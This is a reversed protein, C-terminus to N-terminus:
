SSDDITREFLDLNFNETKEQYVDIEFRIRDGRHLGIDYEFPTNDKLYSITRILILGDGININLLNAEEKTAVAAEIIRHSHTIEYGYKKEIIEYLSNNELDEDALQPPIHNIPVYTRSIVMPENDIYRLRNLFLVSAGEEVQLISSIKGFTQIFKMELVKSKPTLGEDRVDRFFGRLRRLTHRSRKIPSIFTGKGPTRWVLDDDELGKIAQRVVSRSVSFRDCLESETPFQDGPKLEGSLIKHEYFREIQFYLPVPSKKDIKLSDEIAGNATTKKDNNMPKM